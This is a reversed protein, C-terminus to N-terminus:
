SVINVLSTIDNNKEKICFNICYVFYIERCYYQITMRVSTFTINISLSSKQIYFYVCEIAVASLMRHLILVIKSFYEHDKGNINSCFGVIPNIPSIGDNSM